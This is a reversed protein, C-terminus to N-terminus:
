KYSPPLGLSRRLRNGDRVFSRNHVITTLTAWSKDPTHSWAKLARVNDELDRIFADVTRQDAPPWSQSDLVHALNAMPGTMEPVSPLPASDPHVLDKYYALNVPTVAAEYSVVDTLFQVAVGSAPLLAFGDDHPHTPVLSVDNPTSLVEADSYRLPPPRRNVELHQFAITSLSPYPVDNTAAYGDAPDEQFWEAQTFRDSAGYHVEVSRSWGVSLNHVKLYWGQDNRTMDFSILDGPRSLEVIPAARFGRATDSWFIGYSATSKPNAGPPPFFSEDAYSGLQIFPGDPAETQLGIWTASYGPRSTGLVAPIRWEASIQDASAALRYGGFGTAPGFGVVTAGGAGSASRGLGALAAAGAAVLILVVVLL